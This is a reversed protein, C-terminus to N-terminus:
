WASKLVLTIVLGSGISLAAATKPRLGSGAGAVAVWPIMPVWIREVEGKSMGSVNAAAVAVLGAWAVLPARRRFWGIVSSPGISLAVIAPNALFTFYWYPRRSSIGEVYHERTAILGDWWWFGLGGVFCVVALGSVGAILLSGRDRWLIAIPILLMVAGGYTSFGLVAAFLGCGIAGSIRIWRSATRTVAVSALWGAAALEFMFVTDVSVFAWIVAPMLAVPIVASKAVAVGATRRVADLVLVVSGALCALVVIALAFAGPRLQEVLWVTGLAFPPHGKVHVPADALAGLYDAFFGTRVQGLAYRYDHRSDLAGTLAAGRAWQLSWAWGASVAGGVLAHVVFHRVRALKAAGQVVGVGVAVVLVWKWLETPLLYRGYFPAAGVGAKTPSGFSAQEDLFYESEFGAVVSAVVVMAVLTVGSTARVREAKSRTTGLSM